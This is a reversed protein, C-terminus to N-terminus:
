SVPTEISEIVGSHVTFVKAGSLWQREFKGLHTTTIVTQMDKKLASMLLGQRTEDLEALVDDLLLVPPEELSEEVVALEALKLSLVLSRQQGQSGFQAASVGNLQFDIDDRHPGILTQKRGIEYARQGKFLGLFIKAVEEQTAKQLYNASVSPSQASANGEDSDYANDESAKPTRFIYNASLAEKTRSLHSQAGEAIPLLKDLLALRKKVIKAGYGAVQTDWVSLADQDSVTLRGKEFLAKLFRNRQSVIKQYTTITDNFVPDITVIIRDLFDRRFAPGGRVLLLDESSFTVVALHGLLSKSAQQTVGNILIKKTLQTKSKGAIVADKNAKTLAIAVEEEFGQREFIVKLHMSNEQWNIYDSDESARASKGSAAIEIAELFNSKGQANEGILITKGAALVLRTQKYNRFGELIVEKVLM